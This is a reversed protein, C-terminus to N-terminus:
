LVAPSAQQEMKNRRTALLSGVLIVAAGLLTLWLGVSIAVDPTLRERLEATLGRPISSRRIRPAYRVLVDVISYITVLLAIVGCLLGMEPLGAIRPQRRALAQLPYIIAFFALILTMDGHYSIGNVRLSGFGPAQVRIWPLMSGLLLLAVGALIVVSPLQTRLTDSSAPPPASTTEPQGFASSETGYSAEAPEPFQASEASQSNEHATGSRTAQHTPDSM